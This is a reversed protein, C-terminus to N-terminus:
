APTDASRPTATAPAAPANVAQNTVTAPATAATPTTVTNSIQVPPRMVMLTLVAVSALTYVAAVLKM